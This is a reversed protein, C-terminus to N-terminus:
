QITDLLEDVRAIIESYIDEEYQPTDERKTRNGEGIDTIDWHIVKGPLRVIKAAEDFVRLNMCITLDHGDAREQTLQDSQAKAYKEIGHRTLLDKTALLFLHEQLDDLNVATGSSSVMIQNLELSKVYTEAILSRLVNGRCIFHINM